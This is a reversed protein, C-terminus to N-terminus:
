ESWNRTLEEKMREIYALKKLNTQKQEELLLLKMLKRNQRDIVFKFFLEQFEEPVNAMGSLFASLSNQKIPRDNKELVIVEVDSKLEMIIKLM